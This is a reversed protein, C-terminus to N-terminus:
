PSLLDFHSRLGVEQEIAFRANGLREAPVFLRSSGRSKYSKATKVTAVSAVKLRHVNGFDEGVLVQSAM